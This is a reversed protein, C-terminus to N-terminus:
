KRFCLAPYNSYWDDCLWRWGLVVRNGYEYLCPVILNDGRFQAVSGWLFVVNGAFLKRFVIIGKQKIAFGDQLNLCLTITKNKKLQTYVCDGRIHSKQGKALWQQITRLDYKTPKTCELETDMLMRFWGPHAPKILKDVYVLFDPTPKSELKSREVLILEGRLFRDAGKHGGLKNFVAKMTGTTNMTNEEGVM